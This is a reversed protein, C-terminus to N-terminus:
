GYEFNGKALSTGKEDLIEFQPAPAVTQGKRLTSPAYKEGAKGFVALNIAVTKGQPTNQAKSVTAKLVLPPGADITTTAGEKVEIQALKGFPGSSTISWIERKGNVEEGAAQATISVPGYAGVPLPFEKGSPIALPKNAVKLELLLDAPAKINGTPKDASQVASAALALVAVLVLSIGKM